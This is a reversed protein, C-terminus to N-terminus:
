FDEGLKRMADRGAMGLGLGLGVNGVGGAGSSLGVGVEGGKLREMVRRAVEIATGPMGGLQAVRLGHSERNVGPRLRHAYTFADPDDSTSSGMTINTCFFSIHPRTCHTTVTALPDPDPSLHKSSRKKKPAEIPQPETPTEYYGLMDAVEHFHTAFMSRCRNKAHLHHATAFAIALGDRVTTGRGVEDM